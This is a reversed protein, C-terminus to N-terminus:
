PLKKSLKIKKSKSLTKILFYIILVDLVIFGLMYPDQFMRTLLGLGPIKFVYEGAIDDYTINIEQNDEDLWNDYEGEEANAGQTYYIVIDESRDIDAVYHTVYAESGLDKIYVEFTIKDGVEINEQKTKKVLIIDNVNIVPEMSPTLVVFTKFGIVDITKRPMFIELFLYLCLFIVFIYFFINAIRKVIKM